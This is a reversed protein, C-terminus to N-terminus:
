LGKLDGTYSMVHKRFIKYFGENKIGTLETWNWGNIISSICQQSVNFRKAIIYSREGSNSLELIELVQKNTLKSNGHLEQKANRGKSIMDYANDIAHGCFLHKPNCCLKNDCLHCIFKDKEIKGHIMEYVIRHAYGVKGNISFNGYGNKMKPGNWTWCGNSNSRDINNWFQSFRTELKLHYPNVCKENNCLITIFADDNIILGRYLEWSFRKPTTITNDFLFTYRRNEKKGMWIWCPFESEKDINNNFRRIANSLADEDKRYQM